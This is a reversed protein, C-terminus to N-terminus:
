HFINMKLKYVEKENLFRFKGRPLNKKTLGGFFIRDLKVVKYDFLSFIRRIIRNRGSHLQIGVKSRDSEDTWSIEDVKVPGDDLEIGVAIRELDAPDLARDLGVQYIKIVKHSPHTLKKALEGDNTLLLVGTSNRDLRGVPYIRERCANRVLDMVTRKAYPDDVTTIVDKPKNLLLYVKKEPNLKKGKFRVSDSYRVKTGLERVTNGNVSVHGALIYEDAERRSCIGSNAIYRNLRIEEPERTKIEAGRGKRRDTVAGKVDSKGAFRGAAEPVRKRFKDFPHEKGAVKGAPKNERAPKRKQGPNKKNRDQNM